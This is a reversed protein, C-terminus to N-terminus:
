ELPPACQPKVKNHRRILCICSMLFPLFVYFLWCSQWLTYEHKHQTVANLSVTQFILTTTKKELAAHPRPSIGM